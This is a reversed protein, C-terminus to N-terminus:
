KAVRSDYLPKDARLRKRWLYVYVLILAFWNALFLAPTSWPIGSVSYSSIPFLFPTPFFGTAHTPIDMLIHLGWALLPTFPKGRILWIVLFILGFVLFSHTFNYVQAIYTPLLDPRPPEFTAFEPRSLGHTFFHAVFIPGFALVDPLVGLTFATWFHKKNKRGAAASGWLGHSLVDM